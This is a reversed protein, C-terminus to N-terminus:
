EYNEGKNNWRFPRGCGKAAHCLRNEEYSKNNLAESSKDRDM